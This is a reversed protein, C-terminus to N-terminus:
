SAKALPVVNSAAPPPEPGFAPLTRRTLADSHDLISAAYHKRIMAESTDHSKAVIETPTGQLLMRTISSHRFAYMGYVDPDLGIRAVVARVDRRYNQAPDHENWPAGTKQLLLPAHGPRGKAAAKLLAALERSISVAYRQVKRQGPHRTGGKGSKPMMLRPAAMDVTILDRVKLRTAQSPRAGTEAIVHTLLGLQHDRAYSEAVWERAKAEDEIVINNAEVADPLTELGQKWRHSLAPFSLELAARLCNRTRNVSSPALGKRILGDRWTRLEHETILVGPKGLLTESLHV